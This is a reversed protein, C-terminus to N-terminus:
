MLGVIIVLIMSLLSITLNSGSDEVAVYLSTLRTTAISVTGIIVDDTTADDDDNGSILQSLRVDEDDDLILSNFLSSNLDIDDDIFTTETSLSLTSLGYDSSNEPNGSNTPAVGM